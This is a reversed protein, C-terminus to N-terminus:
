WWTYVWLLRVCTCFLEACAATNRGPSKVVALFRFCVLYGNASLQTFRLRDILTRYHFKIWNYVSHFATSQLQTAIVLPWKTLHYLGSVSLGVSSARERKHLRFLGGWQLISLYHDRSVRFTPPPLSLLYGSCVSTCLSPRSQPESNETCSSNVATLSLNFALPFISDPIELGRLCNINSSYSTRSVRIEDTCVTHM